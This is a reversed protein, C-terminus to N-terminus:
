GKMPLAYLAKAAHRAMEHSADNDQGTGMHSIHAHIAAIHMGAATRHPEDYSAPNMRRKRDHAEAEGPLVAETLTQSKRVSNILASV